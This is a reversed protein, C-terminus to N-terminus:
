DYIGGGSQKPQQRFDTDQEETYNTSVSNSLIEKINDALEEAVLSMAIYLALPIFLTIINLFAFLTWKLARNIKM